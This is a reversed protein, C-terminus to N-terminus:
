LLVSEVPLNLLSKIHRFYTWLGLLNVKVSKENEFSYDTALRNEKCIDLRIFGKTVDLFMLTGQHHHYYHHYHGWCINENHMIIGVTKNVCAVKEKQYQLVRPWFYWVKLFQLELHIIRIDSRETKGKIQGNTEGDCKLVESGLYRWIM